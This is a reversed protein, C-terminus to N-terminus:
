KFDPTLVDHGYSLPHVRFPRKRVQTRSLFTLQKSAPQCQRPSCFVIPPLGTVKVYGM